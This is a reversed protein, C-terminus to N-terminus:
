GPRASREAAMLRVWAAAGAQIRSRLAADLDLEADVFVLQSAPDTEPAIQRVTGEVTIAPDELRSAVITGVGLSQLDHPPVAFRVWLADSSLLRVVPTGPGAMGGPDVYREAVTGSFPARLETDALQRELQARKTRWQAVVAAVRAEAAKARRYEFRADEVEGRTAAGAAVLKELRALLSAAEERDVQAQGLAAKESRLTAETMRLDERARRADLTALAQGAEVYDGPRVHVELVEGAVAPGVDTKEGAAIVGVYEGPRAEDPPPTTVPPEPAADDPTSGEDADAAAPDRPADAGPCGALALWPLVWLWAGRRPM